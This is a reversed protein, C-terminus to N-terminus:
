RMACAPKGIVWRRSRWATHPGSYPPSSSYRLVKTRWNRLFSSSSGPSGAYRSVSLWMPYRNASAFGSGTSSFARLQAGEHLCITARGAQPKTRGSRRSRSEFYDKPRKSVQGCRSLHALHSYGFCPPLTRPHFGGVSGGSDHVRRHDASHVGRSRGVGFWLSVVSPMCCLLVEEIAQKSVVRVYM